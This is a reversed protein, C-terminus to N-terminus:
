KKEEPKVPESVEPKFLEHFKAAKVTIVPGGGAQCFQVTDHPVLEVRYGHEDVYIM